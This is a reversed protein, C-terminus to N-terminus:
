VPTSDTEADREMYAAIDVYATFTPTFSPAYAGEPVEDWDMSCGLIRFVRRYALPDTVWGSSGDLIKIIEFDKPIDSVVVPSGKARFQSQFAQEMFQYTVEITKCRRM